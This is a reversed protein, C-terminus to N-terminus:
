GGTPAWGVQLRGATSVYTANEAANSLALAMADLQAPHRQSHVHILAAVLSPLHFRDLEVEREHTRSSVVTGDDDVDPERWVLWGDGAADPRLQVSATDSARLAHSSAGVAIDVLGGDADRALALITDVVEVGNHPKTLLTVLQGLVVAADAGDARERVVTLATTLAAVDTETLDPSWYEWPLPHGDPGLTYRFTTTGLVAREAPLLKDALVTHAATLDTHGTSAALTGIRQEVEAMLARVTPHDPLQIM